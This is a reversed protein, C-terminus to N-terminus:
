PAALLRVLRWAPSAGAAEIIAAVNGAADLVLATEGTRGPAPLRALVDQQGRRLRALDEASLAEFAVYDALAARIPVLPLPADPSRALLADLPSADEVGFAGVRTRRLRELHAVTGLAAGIEAALVRVYTGKSCAVDFAVTDPGQLVLTLRAIEIERAEREVEIGRRALKYLPVGDRKLASYMPPVQQRRGTLRVALADIARQDLPPVAATEVCAGTRDLTDTAAGLRITGTYAKDELLLYRAVKTAEGLCLPLLGSAFPDLTGLHGVKTRGLRPKLARIVGASTTDEPKDVLLLGTV